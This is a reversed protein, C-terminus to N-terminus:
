RLHTDRGTIHQCPEMTRELSHLRWSEWHSESRASRDRNSAGRGPSLRANWQSRQTIIFLAWVRAVIGRDHQPPLCDRLAQYPFWLQVVPIFYSAVGWGPSRRAPYGLQRATTAARYQWVLFLIEAAIAFPIFLDARMPPNAVPPAQVGQSASDFAVRISHFYNAWGASTALVTLTSAVGVLPYVVAVVKAWPVMTEESRFARRAWERTWRYDVAPSTYPTWTSGDWWRLLQPSTPDHYWGPPVAQTM